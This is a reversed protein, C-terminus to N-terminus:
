EVNNDGLIPLTFTVALGQNENNEAWIKGNHKNIIERCISLGLGKVFENFNPKILFVDHYFNFNKIKPDVVIPINDAIDVIKNILNDDIVGKDYDQLIIIDITEKDLIYEISRILNNYDYYDLPTRIEEDYRLLQYNNGIIRTKTTTQRNTSMIIYRNDMKNKEVLNKLEKGNDDSGIISCLIPNSGLKKINLAVNGAGGLRNYSDKINVVPVPAEPSIRTVDGVLYSDLMIDGIILINKNNDFM